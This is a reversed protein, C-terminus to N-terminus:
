PRTESLVAYMFILEWKARRKRAATDAAAMAAPAARATRKPSKMRLEAMVRRFKRDLSSILTTYSSNSRITNACETEKLDTAGAGPNAHLPFIPRSPLLYDGEDSEYDYTLEMHAMRDFVKLYEDRNTQFTGVAIATLPRHLLFCVPSPTPSGGCLFVSAFATRFRVPFVGRRIGLIPHM